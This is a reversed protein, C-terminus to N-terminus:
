ANPKVGRLVKAPVGGVKMGGEVDSVVAAGAGIVAGAGVHLRQIICAGIGVWSYAGVEVKGAIHVGPCVHVGIGLKCDHDITAATNIISGRGISVNANIVAHAFVVCGNGLKASPSIWATPHIIPPTSFGLKDLENLIDIRRHVDGIAVVAQDYKGVINNLDDVRGIVPWENLQCLDPFRDDLFVIKRWKSSEEATEGVVSGHGGAGIILLCDM